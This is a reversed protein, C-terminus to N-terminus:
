CCEVWIYVLLFVEFEELILNLNRILILRAFFDCFPFSNSGFQCVVLRFVSSYLWNSFSVAERQSEEFFEPAAFVLFTVGNFTKNGAFWCRKGFVGNQRFRYNFKSVVKLKLDFELGSFHSYLLICKFPLKREYQDGFLFIIPILDEEFLGWRTGKKTSVTLSSDPWFLCPNPM